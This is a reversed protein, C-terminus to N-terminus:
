HLDKMHQIVDFGERISTDVKFSLKPTTRTGLSHGIRGQIFGAAHNLAEVGAALKEAPLYGSIQVFAQSMDKTVRVGSVCLLTSVRPDRIENRLVMSSIAEAVLREVREHRFKAM